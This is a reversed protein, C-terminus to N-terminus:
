DVVYTSVLSPRMCKGRDKKEIDVCLYFFHKHESLIVNTM